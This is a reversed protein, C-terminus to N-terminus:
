QWAAWENDISPYAPRPVLGGNKAIYLEQVNKNNEISLNIRELVSDNITVNYKKKASQLAQFIKQNLKVDYQKDLDLDLDDDIRIENGKLNFSNILENKFASYTIKDKWWSSQKKVWNNNYYQKERAVSVLIKDRVMKWIMNELSKSFTILNKKNFKLHLERNRYWNIFNALTYNNGVTEVLVIDSYNNKYKDEIKELAQEQKDFLDWENFTNTDLVFHGMYSRLITFSERKIIPNSELMLNHVYLDSLSDMKIKVLADFSKQYNQVYDSQTQILSETQNVLSIIYWGGEVFIPESYHKSRLSSYMKYLTLNKKRLDFLSMKLSRQDVFVTDNIQTNFLSDFDVGNNLLKYNQEAEDESETFLWKLELEVLKENVAKKVEISDVKIKKIIEDKFLEETAIDGVIDNYVNDITEKNLKGTDMAEMALLKEQIMYKLHISKSNPAKKPFSPGFEYSYFFEEATIETSGVKAIVEDASIKENNFENFLSQSYNMESCLLVICIYFIFHKM